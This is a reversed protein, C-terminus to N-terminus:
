YHGVHGDDHGVHGDDHGVDGGIMVLMVMMMVLMVLAMVLMVVTQGKCVLCSRSNNNPFTPYAVLEFSKNILSKKKLISSKCGKAELPM